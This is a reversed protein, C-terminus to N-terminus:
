VSSYHGNPKQFYNRCDHRLYKSPVSGPTSCRKPNAGWLKRFFFKTKTKNKFVFFLSLLFSFLTIHTSDKTAVSRKGSGVGQGPKVSKRGVQFPFAHPTPTPPTYLMCVQQARYKLHLFTIHFLCHGYNVRMDKLFFYM